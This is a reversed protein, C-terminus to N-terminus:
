VSTCSTRNDLWIIVSFINVHVNINIKESYHGLKSWTQAFSFKFFFSVLLAANQCKPNIIFLDSQRNWVYYHKNLKDAANQDSEPGVALILLTFNGEFQSSYKGLINNVNIHPLIYMIHQQLKRTLEFAAIDLAVLLFHISLLPHASWVAHGCFFWTKKFHTM